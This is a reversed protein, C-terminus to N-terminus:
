WRRCWRPEAVVGKFRSVAIPMACHDRRLTPDQGPDDSAMPQRLPLTWLKECMSGPQTADDPSLRHNRILQHDKLFDM